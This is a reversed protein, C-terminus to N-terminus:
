GCTSTPRPAADSRTPRSRKAAFVPDRYPLVLVSVGITIRGTRAALWALLALPELMLEPVYGEGM